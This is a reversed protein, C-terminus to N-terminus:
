DEKLLGLKEIRRYISCRTMGAEKAAQAINGKNRDLARQLFAREFASKAEEYNLPLNSQLNAENESEVDVTRYIPLNSARITDGQELVVAREVANRLERVNGPWKYSKLNKLAGPSFRYIKKGFNRSLVKLFHMALPEIEDVRERLPKLSVNFVNIRYYLDQRFFGSKVAGILDCNTACLLRIDLPVDESSGLRNITKEQLVRLLKVQIELPLEGVEDLFLTGSSALEFRGMRDKDAGTFAGKICGFLEAEMIERPLAACNVAIFPGMSRSSRNHIDRAVMEKGTGTEGTVLVTVDQAAAAQVMEDLEKSAKGHGRLYNDTSSSISHLACLRNRTELLRVRTQNESLIGASLGTVSEFLSIQERDFGVGVAPRDVYVVGFIRNRALLPACLVTRPGIEKISNAECIEDAEITNEIAVTARNKLARKFITSSLELFTDVNDLCHTAVPVLEKDKHERLLVFGRECGLFEVLGLLLRGLLSRTDTNKRLADLFSTFKGWGATLNVPKPLFKSLKTPEDSLWLKVHHLEIEEGLELISCSSNSGNWCDEYTVDDGQRNISLHIRSIKRDPIVYDCDKDRGITTTGELLRFCVNPAGSTTKIVLWLNRM